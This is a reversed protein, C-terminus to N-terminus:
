AEKFKDSFTTSNMDKFYSSKKKLIFYVYLFGVVGGGLHAMHAIGSQSQSAVAFVEIAMYIIVLYKAKIPLM